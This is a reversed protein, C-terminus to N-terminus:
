IKALHRLYAQLVPRNVALHLYKGARSTLVLDSTELAKIHHCLTAPSVAQAKQLAVCSATGTAGIQKLIQYRRPAGLARAIRYFGKHSLKAM